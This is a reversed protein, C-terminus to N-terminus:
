SRVTRIFDRYWEASPRVKRSLTERDVEVLGFRPWFGHAWEFNDFLSWHLYGEINVGRDVAKVMGIFTEELWWQRHADRNDAVGNETIIIPLKYREDAEVLVHEINTPEMNWGMDNQRENPSTSKLGERRDSMYFNLGIFDHFKATRDFFWWNWGIDALWISTKTLPSNDGAYLHDIHQAIGIHLGPKLTKLMKYVRKHAKILNRYVKFALWGSTAQPPWTGKYYSMGAYVNPENLTVIINVQDKIQIMVKECFREFYRINETREFGGKETFWVPMTWHWLCIIPEIGRKKLARLVSRYHEIEAENWQGEEPEIRSWEISFRFANLQLNQAIDLDEEYREYHDIAIGSVYNDPNTAASKFDDWRPLWHAFRKPAETALESANALEWVSWQNHNRGEVQHASTSAGWYKVGKLSKFKEQDM